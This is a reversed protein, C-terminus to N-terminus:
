EKSELALEVLLVTSCHYQIVNPVGTCHLTSRLLSDSSAGVIRLVRRIWSIRCHTCTNTSWHSCSSFGYNKAKENKESGDGGFDPSPNESSPCMYHFRIVGSLPKYYPQPKVCWKLTAIRCNCRRLVRGVSELMSEMYLPPAGILPLSLCPQISSIAIWSLRLM